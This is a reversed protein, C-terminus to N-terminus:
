SGAPTWKEVKGAVAPVTRLYDYIAGLDQDTMGTYMLWPMVTQFDTAKWDVPPPVYSSDSYQRFKAIFTTKDWAGIGDAHPTINVSRVVSGTPFNFAFGGAFPEGVKKGKEMKTHCEGCGAANVLYGGYAVADSPDPRKTPHAEQPITHLIINVPFDAKSAQPVNTQEPLSRLYAMLSYIDETDMK